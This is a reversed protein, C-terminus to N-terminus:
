IVSSYQIVHQLRDMMSPDCCIVCYTIVKHGVHKTLGVPVPPAYEPHEKM